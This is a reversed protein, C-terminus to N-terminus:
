WERKLIEDMTTIIRARVVPDRELEQQVQDILHQEEDAPLTYGYRQHVATAATRRV